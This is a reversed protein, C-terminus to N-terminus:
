DWASWDLKADATPDFVAQRALHEYRNEERVSVVPDPTATDAYDTDIFERTVALLFREYAAETGAYLCECYEADGYVYRAESGRPVRVVKRVPLAALQRRREDTDALKREFGANLLMEQRRLAKDEQITACGSTVLLALVVVRSLSRPTM